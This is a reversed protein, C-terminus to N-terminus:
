RSGDAASVTGAAVPRPGGNRLAASARALVDDGSDGKQWAACGAAVGQGDLQLELEECIKRALTEDAGPVVLAIRRGSERAATGGCRAAVRDVAEAVARIADDGAAYGRGRNIEGIDELQLVIAGFPRDQVEARAAEAKAVEHLHRHGYLLTLSDVVSFASEGLLREDHARRAELEPDDLAFSLVDPEGQAEDPPHARIEDVFYRVITPDFQTGACRKLEDCAEEVSMASRYPRDSTMSSFADAVGILRAEIPIDEGRLKAPYGDGDWREHHHLIAPAIERLAPIQEVLRFGIKPHLEVILREDPTLPGSKLLIRESIGIKGIDHLLSAFILGERKRPDIGLRAAAATVYSSVQNSHTRLERDKAELADALVRVTALYSGRLEGRLRANHLVAGAHDGLSLLVDDDYEDFGGPKNVAVVAGHFRDRMYIPIAVLNDIEEDAPTRKEDVLESPDNVRVTRDREIVQEAFHQAVASDRPDHEFGEAAVLDLLGDSNEDERSLLLGKEAGVLALATRLVLKRVDSTEGGLAGQERQLEALKARLERNWEHETRRAREIRAREQREAELERERERITQELQQERRRADGVLRRERARADRWALAGALLSIAIAALGPWRFGALVFAGAALASAGAVL